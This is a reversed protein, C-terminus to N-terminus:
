GVSVSHSARRTFSCAPGGVQIHVGTRWGSYARTCQHRTEGGGGRLLVYPADTDERCGASAEGEWMSVHANSTGGGRKLSSTSFVLHAFHGEIASWRDPAFFIWCASTLSTVVDCHPPTTTTTHYHHPPIHHLTTHHHHPPTTHDLACRDAEQIHETANPLTYISLHTCCRHVTHVRAGLPWAM